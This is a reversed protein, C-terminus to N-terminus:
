ELGLNEQKAYDCVYLLYVERVTIEEKDVLERLNYKEGDKIAHYGIEDISGSCCRTCKGFYYGDITIDFPVVECVLPVDRVITYGNIEGIIDSSAPTTVACEDISRPLSLSPFVFLTITVIVILFVLKVQKSLKVDMIAEERM